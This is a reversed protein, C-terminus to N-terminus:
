DACGLSIQDELIKEIRESDNEGAVTCGRAVKVAVKGCESKSELTGGSWGAYIPEMEVRDLLKVDISGAGCLLSGVVTGSYEAELVTSLECERRGDHLAKGFTTAYGRFYGRALDLDEDSGPKPPRIAKTVALLAHEFGSVEECGRTGITARKIQAVMREGNQIGLERGIRYRDAEVPLPNPPPSSPKRAMAEAGSCGLNLGLTLALLLIKFNPDMM